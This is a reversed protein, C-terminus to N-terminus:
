GTRMFAGSIQSPVVRHGGEAETVTLLTAVATSYCRRAEPSWSSFPLDPRREKSKSRHAVRRFPEILVDVPGFREGQEQIAQAVQRSVANLKNSHWLNDAARM